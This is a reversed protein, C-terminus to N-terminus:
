KAPALNYYFTLRLEISPASLKEPLHEYPAAKLVAGMANDDLAKKSSSFIMSPLAPSPVTGDKQIQLRISVMGQNGNAVSPPMTALAKEKVSKYVSKM